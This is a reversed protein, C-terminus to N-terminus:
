ETVTLDSLFSRQYTAPRVDKQYLLTASPGLCVGSVPATRALDNRRLLCVPNVSSEEVARSPIPAHKLGGKSAVQVFSTM